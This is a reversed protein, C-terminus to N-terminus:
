TAVGDAQVRGFLNLLRAAIPLNGVDKGAILDIKYPGVKITKQRPLRETEVLNLDVVLNLRSKDVCPCKLIGIGRAEIKGSILAPASVIVGAGDNSLIVQDDAVLVGGLAILELSFSSKGSGPPGLALISKGDFDVCSGHVTGLQIDLTV